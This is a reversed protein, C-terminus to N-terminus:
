SEYVHGNCSLNNEHRDTRSKCNIPQLWAIQPINAGQLAMQLNTLCYMEQKLEPTTWSIPPRTLKNTVIPPVKDFAEIFYKQFIVSLVNLNDTSLM